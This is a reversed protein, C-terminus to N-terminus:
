KFIWQVSRGIWSANRLDRIEELNCFTLIINEEKQHQKLQKLGSVANRMYYFIYACSILTSVGFFLFTFEFKELYPFIVSILGACAGTIMAHMRPTLVNKPYTTKVRSGSITFPSNLHRRSRAHLYQVAHIAPSTIGIAFSTTLSTTLYHNILASTIIYSFASFFILVLSLMFSMCETFSETIYACHLHKILLLGILVVGPLHLESPSLILLMTGLACYAFVASHLNRPFYQKDTRIM